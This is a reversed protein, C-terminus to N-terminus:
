HQIKSKRKRWKGAVQISYKRKDQEFLVQYFPKKFTNCFPNDKVEYPKVEVKIPKDVNIIKFWGWETSCIDNEDLISMEKIKKYVIDSTYCIYPEEKTGYVKSLKEKLTKVSKEFAEVIEENSLKTEVKAELEKSM